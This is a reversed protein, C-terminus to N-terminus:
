VADRQDVGMDDAVAWPEVDGVADIVHLLSPCGLASACRVICACEDCHECGRPSSATSSHVDSLTDNPSLGQVGFNWSRLEVIRFNSWACDNRRGPIFLQQAILVKLVKLEGTPRVRIVRSPLATPFSKNEKLVDKHGVYEYKGRKSRLPPPPFM